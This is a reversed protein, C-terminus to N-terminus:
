KAEPPTASVLRKTYGLSSFSVEISVYFPGLHKLTIASLSEAAAFM